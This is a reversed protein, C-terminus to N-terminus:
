RAYEVCRTERIVTVKIQGPYQMDQEVRKSLDRALHLAANDDVDRPKVFVRLERGAFIAYSKEVGDFGAAIKELQELRKLYFETTEARAGPRAATLADAATALSAYPSQGQCDGHHAGVANVVVDPEGHRKLFNAGIEAHGGAVAHDLAKGIDHLLGVRRAIAADLGLDAAMMGMLHGTELAHQLVNQSYSHRFKLQGLREIIEPALGALGLERAAAEGTKVTDAALSAQTAAVVEEITGPHIRGDSILRTLAVRAIERRMPEFCSIVVADPTEDILLNVGTAAEFSRINRGERGILRGKMDESPLSVTTTTISAVQPAAYRELATTIIDRAVEESQQLAQQQVHRVLEATEHRLEEHLERFLERRAIDPTMCAMQHLRERQQKLLTELEAARTDAANRRRTAEQLEDHLHLERRDLVAVKRDLLDEREDVRAARKKLDADQAATAAQHEARLRDREAQVKLHAEQVLVQARLEAEHVIERAHREAGVLRLHTMLWHICYGSVIGLAVAATPFWWPIELIKETMDM